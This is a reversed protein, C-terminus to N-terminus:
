DQRQRRKLRLWGWWAIVLVVIGAADFIGPQHGGSFPLVTVIHFERGQRVFNILSFVIILILVIKAAKM